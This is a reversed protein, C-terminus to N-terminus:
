RGRDGATRRGIPLTVHCIEQKTETTDAKLRVEPTRSFGSAVRWSKKWVISRGPSCAASRPRGSGPPKRSRRIRSGRRAFPLSSATALRSRAFARCCRTADPPRMPPTRRWADISPPSGPCGAGFVGSGTAADCTRRGHLAVRARESALRRGRRAHHAPPLHGPRRGAGSGARPAHGARASVLGGCAPRVARRRDRRCPAPSGGRRCTLPLFSVDGRAGNDADSICRQLFPTQSPQVAVIPVRSEPSPVRSEPSPVRSEPSARSESDASEPSAIRGDRIGRNPILTSSLSQGM